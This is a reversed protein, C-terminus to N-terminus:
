SSVGHEALEDFLIARALRWHRKVTRSSVQRMGAIEEISLGAFFRQEVLRALGADVAELRNLAEDLAVLEEAKEAVPIEVEDLTLAFRGGGRKRSMRLRAHDVLVQRMARASLALFHARGTTSWREGRALKAYAEHVLATTNLTEARAASTLERRAIRKLEGYVREFLRDFADRDGADVAELLEAIEVPDAPTGSM